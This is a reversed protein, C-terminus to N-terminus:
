QSCRAMISYDWATGGEPGYVIVQFSNQGGKRFIGSLEGWGQGALGGPYLSPNAEVYYADGRWGTDLVTTGPPYQVIFRDPMSYADFRIDFDAGSPLQSIDWVDVTTGYGGSQAASWQNCFNLDQERLDQIITVSVSHSALFGGTAVDYLKVETAFFGDKFVHSVTSNEGSSRTDSVAGGDGFTWDFRYNGPPDATATFTHNYEVEGQALAHSVDGGLITVTTENVEFKITISDVELYAGDETYLQVQPHFEDDPKVDKYTHVVVSHQGPQKLDSFTEDDGFDWEFYYTGNPRAVAEFEHEYEYEVTHSDAPLEVIVIRPPLISVSYGELQYPLSRFLRGGALVEIHLEQGYEAEYFAEEETLVTNGTPVYVQLPEKVWEGESSEIQDLIGNKFLLKRRKVEKKDKSFVLTGPGTYKIELGFHQWAPDSAALHTMSPEITIITRQYDDEFQKDWQVGQDEYDAELKLTPFFLDILDSCAYIAHALLVSGQAPAYATPIHYPGMRSAFRGASEMPNIFVSQDPDFWHFSLREQAMPIRVGNFLGYYKTVLRKMVFGQVQTISKDLDAFQPSPHVGAFPWGYNNPMVGSPADYITDASYFTENTFRALQDFLSDPSQLTGGASALYPRLRVDVIPSQAAARVHEPFTRTEIPEDMPHSDNRVHAPMAMDALMHMAEGLARYALALYIRRQDAHDTPDLRLNLKFHTQSIGQSLPITEDVGLALKYFTLAQQLSFPNDPHHLGWTKADVEPDDYNSHGWWQDTLYPLIVSLPDYFHRVSAYLHPEDAWDGGSVIWQPMAFNGEALSYREFLAQPRPSRFLTSSTVAIGRCRERRGEETILGREYKANGPMRDFFKKLAEYNIQRHTPQEWASAQFATAALLVFLSVAMLIRKSSNNRPRM